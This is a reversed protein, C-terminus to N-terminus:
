QDGKGAPHAAVIGRRMKLATDLHARMEDTADRRGCRYGIYALALGALVLAVVTMM